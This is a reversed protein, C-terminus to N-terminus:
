VKKITQLLSLTDAGMICLNGVPVSPGCQQIQDVKQPMKNSSILDNSRFINQVPSTINQQQQQQQQQPMTYIQNSSSLQKTTQPPLQKTTQPKITPKNAFGETLYWGAKYTLHWVIAFVVAHVAAVTYKKGKPPLSVLIGPTLAFFLVASFLFM